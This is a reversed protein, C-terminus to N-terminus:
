QTPETNQRQDDKEIKRPPWIQILTALVIAVFSVFYVPDNGKIDSKFFGYGNAVLAVIGLIVLIFKKL